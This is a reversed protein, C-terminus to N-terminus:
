NTSTPYIQSVGDARLAEMHQALPKLGAIAMGHAAFLFIRKTM